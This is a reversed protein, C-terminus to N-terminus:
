RRRDHMAFASQMLYSLPHKNLDHSIYGVRIRGVFSDTHAPLPQSLMSM